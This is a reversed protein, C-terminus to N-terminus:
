QDSGVLRRAIPLLTAVLEGLEAVVEPLPPAELRHRSLFASWQRQRAEDRAFEASLGTPLARPLATGRRVFTAAIGCALTDADMRAERALALLDFYDKMRSNAIGLVTMAELKEAFVTERPYVKLHPAPLDDLLTPLTREDPGPTVADGFGVDWQILCVARGLRARLSARLGDYRAAERIPAVSLTDPDFLLGDDLDMACLRRVARDLHGPDPSGVGLFDADRTPRHSVDFWIAFLMAGKLLFQNRYPSVSLRYLLREVAYRDLVLQFDIGCARAHNLLRQRISDSRATGSASV